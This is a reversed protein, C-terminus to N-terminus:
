DAAGAAGAACGAVAEERDHQAGGNRAEEAHPVRRGSRLSQAADAPAMESSATTTTPASAVCQRMRREASKLSVVRGCRGGSMASM